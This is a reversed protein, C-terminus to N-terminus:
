GAALLQAAQDPSFGVTTLVRYPTSRSDAAVSGLYNLPSLSYLDIAGGNGAICYDGACSVWDAAQFNAGMLTWLAPSGDHRGTPWGAGAATTTTPPPEPTTPTPSAAAVVAPSPPAEPGTTPRVGILVLLVVAASIAASAAIQWTRSRAPRKWVGASFPPGPVSGEETRARRQPSTQVQPGSPSVASASAEVLEATIRIFTQVGGVSVYVLQEVKGKPGVWRPRFALTISRAPGLTSDTFSVDFFSASRPSVDVRGPAGANTLVVTCPCTPANRAIRGLDVTSRDLCPSPPHHERDYGARASPDLLLDRARNIAAMRRSADPHHCMDPHWRRAQERWAREIGASDVSLGVGLVEYPDDAVVSTV